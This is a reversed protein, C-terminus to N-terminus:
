NVLAESLIRPTILIFTETKHQTNATSKFLTGLYPIEGLLPVKEM